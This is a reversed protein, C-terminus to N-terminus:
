LSSKILEKRIYDAMKQTIGWHPWEKDFASVSGYGGIYGNIRAAVHSKILDEGPDIDLANCIFPHQQLLYKQHYDEAIYFKEAPWIKTEIHLINLDQQKRYTEEAMKKEEDNFYYIVSM